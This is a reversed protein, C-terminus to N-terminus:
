AGVDLVQLAWIFTNDHAVMTIYIRHGCTMCCTSAEQTGKYHRECGVQPVIKYGSLGSEDNM